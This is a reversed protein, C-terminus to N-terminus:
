AISYGACCRHRLLNWLAVFASLLLAAPLAVLQDRPAADAARRGVADERQVGGQRLTGVALVLAQLHMALIWSAAIAAGVLDKRADVLCCLAAAADAHLENSPNLYAREFDQHAGM